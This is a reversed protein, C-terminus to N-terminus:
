SEFRQRIQPLRVSELYLDCDRPTHKGDCYVKHEATAVMRWFRTGALLYGCRDCNKPWAAECAACASM